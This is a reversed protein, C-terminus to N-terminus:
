DVYEGTEGRLAAVVAVWAIQPLAKLRPLRWPEQIVRFLWELGCRRMWAPARKLRGSIVDFSGGVGICVPVGLEEMHARIWKEQKPIGFAVFLVAPEARRIREIVAPEEEPTFYGHQVGALRLGPVAAALKEAAAEAVGEAGGLLFVSRGAETALECLRQVMDVGSVRERIPVNLLRAALVVGQGDATVLDAEDMIARLEADEQARIVGTADSTVIMHPSGEAIFERARGLAAEMSVPTIRVGLLRIAGEAGGKERPLIRLLVFGVVVGVTLFGAVLVAKLAFHLEIQWVLLVALAGCWAAGLTLLASIQRPAYGERLLLEHLHERREALAMGSPRRRLDALYSYAAGFLPVSILLLPLVAALFATNKLLGLISIAGLLFGLLYPGATPRAVRAASRGLFRVLCVAGIAASFWLATGRNVDPQLACVAILTGCAAAGVGYAVGPLTGARAFIASSLWMWGASLPLSWGGLRMFTSSFPPKLADIRFGAYHLAAAALIVAVARLGRPLRWRDTVLGWAAVWAAAGAFVALQWPQPGFSMQGLAAALLVAGLLSVAGRDFGVLARGSVSGSEANV